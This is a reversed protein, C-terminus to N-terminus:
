IAERIRWRATTSIEYAAGDTARFQVDYEGAVVDATNLTWRFVGQEADVVIFVGAAARAAGDVPRLRASVTLGSLDIPNGNSDRWQIQLPRLTSGATIEPLRNDRITKM